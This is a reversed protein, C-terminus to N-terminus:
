FFEVNKGHIKVISLNMQLMNKNANDIEQFNRFTLNIVKSSICAINLIDESTETPM